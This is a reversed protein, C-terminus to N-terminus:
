ETEAKTEVKTETRLNIVMLKSIVKAVGKASKAISIAKVASEDSDVSGTLTVVGANVEIGIDGRQILNESAYKQSISVNIMADSDATYDAAEFAMKDEYVEREKVRIEQQQKENEQQIEENSDVGPVWDTVDRVTSCGSMLLAMSIMSILLTKFNMSSIGAFNINKKM